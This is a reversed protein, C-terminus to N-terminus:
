SFGKFLYGRLLYSFHLSVLLPLLFMIIEPFKFAQMYTIGSLLATIGSLLYINIAKPSQIKVDRDLLKIVVQFMGICGMVGLVTVLLPALTISEDTLIALLMFPSMILSLVLLCFVPGFGVILELLIIIKLAQKM